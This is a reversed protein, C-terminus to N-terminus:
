WVEQEARQDRRTNLVGWLALAAAEVPASMDGGFGWGGGTGIARRPSTAASDRLNGDPGYWTFTGERACVLLTECAAQYQSANSMVLAGRAFAPAVREKLAQASGRGDVVVCAFDDAHQALWEAVRWTGSETTEVAVLEVWSPGEDPDLALAVAVEGGDPAFKVGIARKADGPPEDGAGAECAAFVRPDIAPQVHGKPLWYGLYEQAFALESMSRRSMRLADISAIRGLSPNVEHWRSEDGVDGIEDIGWEWWCLDDADEGGELADARILEFVDGPRGPRPPTGLYISQPNHMDGSTSTPQVAQQQEDTLEQAEDYVIVDFSYGLSSSKTRTSFCLVGGSSLEFSEQATKNNARVMERNFQPHKANPDRPRQGFLERFRRLMECTTSYNHDTWLVRYGSAVLFAVWAIATDSKGAQRPVSAGCRRHVFQGDSDVASFDRLMDIQWDLLHVDALEMVACVADARDRERDQCVHLRPSAYGSSRRSRRAKKEAM